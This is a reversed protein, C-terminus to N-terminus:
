QANDRLTMVVSSTDMLSIDRVAATLLANSLGPQGTKSLQVELDVRQLSSLAQGAMSNADSLSVSVPWNVVEQKSVATPMRVQSGAPRAIVFLTLGRYAEPALGEELEVTVGLKVSSAAFESSQPAGSAQVSEASRREAEVIASRMLEFAESGPAELDRLVRMYGVAELYQGAGFSGMALTALASKQRPDSALAQEARQQARPTLVQGNAVFEAQAARGLVDPANPAEALIAEFNELADEANGTAIYYEGLLSHYDLNKPRQSSRAEIRTILTTVEDPAASELNAIARAIQVDEYAGLRDYLPVTFAVLLCALAVQYGWRHSAGRVVLTDVKQDKDDWARLQADNLLSADDTEAQRVSLWDDV